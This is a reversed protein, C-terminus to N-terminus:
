VVNKWDFEEPPAFAQQIEGLERPAADQRRTVLGINRIM